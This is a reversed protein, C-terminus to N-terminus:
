KVLIKKVERGQRRIYIGSKLNEGDVRIGQLNYWEVPVNKNDDISIDEINTSSRGDFTYCAVGQGAVAVWVYLQKGDNTLAHTLDSLHNTNRTTGLGASPYTGIPATIADIGDTMNILSFAGGSLTNATDVYDMAAMYTKSGFAILNVATASKGNTTLGVTPLSEIYTGDAKFHMPVVDKGDVWMTGDEDFTIGASGNHSGITKGLTITSPSPNVTGNTVTYKYVTSTPTSVLWIAGSTM